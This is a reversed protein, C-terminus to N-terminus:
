PQQRAARHCRGPGGATILTHHQDRGAPYATGARRGAAWDSGDRENGRHLPMGGRGQTGHVRSPLHPRAAPGRHRPPNAQRATPIGGGGACIVIAQSQLLLWIAPLDPLGTPEPSPVVRRWRTGDQCVQWGRSAALALAQEKDYVPGVFKSPSAFAPHDLRVLTRSVLCTAQRGPVADQLAQLLWYGIM